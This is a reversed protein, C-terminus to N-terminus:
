IFTNMLMVLLFCKREWINNMKIIRENTYTYVKSIVTEFILWLNFYFCVFFLKWTTWFLKWSGPLKKRFDGVSGVWSLSLNLIPSNMSVSLSRFKIPFVSNICKKRHFTSCVAPKGSSRLVYPLSQTLM